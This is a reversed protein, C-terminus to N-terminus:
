GGRAIEHGEVYVSSSPAIDLSDLLIDSRYTTTALADQRICRLLVIKLIALTVM